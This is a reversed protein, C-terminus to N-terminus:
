IGFYNREFLCPGANHLILAAQRVLMGHLCGKSDQMSWRWDLERSIHRSLCHISSSRHRKVGAGLHFELGRVCISVGETVSM